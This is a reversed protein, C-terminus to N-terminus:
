AMGNGHWLKVRNQLQSGRSLFSFRIYLAIIRSWIDVILPVWSVVLYVQVKVHV